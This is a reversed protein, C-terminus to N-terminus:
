RGSCSRTTSRTARMRRSRTPRSTCSRPTLGRLRFLRHPRARFRRARRGGCARGDAGSEDEGTLGTTDNVITISDKDKLLVKFTQEGTECSDDECLHCLYGGAIEDYCDGALSYNAGGRVAYTIRVFPNAEWEIIEAQMASVRQGPHEALHAADYSRIFCSEYFDRSTSRRRRARRSAAIGFRVSAAPARRVM